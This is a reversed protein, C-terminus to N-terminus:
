FVTEFEKRIDDDEKSSCLCNFKKFNMSKNLTGTKSVSLPFYAELHICPIESSKIMKIKVIQSINDLKIDIYQYEM